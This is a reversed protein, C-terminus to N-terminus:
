ITWDWPINLINVRASLSNIEVSSSFTETYGINVRDNYSRFRAAKSGPANGAIYEPTSDRTEFFTMSIDPQFSLVSPFIITAAGTVQYETITGFPGSTTISDVKSHFDAIVTFVVQVLQADTTFLRRGSTALDVGPAAIEGVFSGDTRAGFVAVDRM